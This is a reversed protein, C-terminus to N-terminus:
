QKILQETPIPTAAAIGRVKPLATAISSSTSPIVSSPEVVHAVLGTNLVDTLKGRNEMFVEWTVSSFERAIITEFTRQVKDPKQAISYRM